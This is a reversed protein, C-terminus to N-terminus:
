LDIGVLFRVQIRENSTLELRTNGDPNGENWGWIQPMVTLAAWWRETRYSVVPGLYLATKTVKEYEPLISQSRFEMGASWSKGLDYAVGLSGGVEGQYESYNHEWETAHEVNLAWKLAGYRQGLILKQEVEAEDGGYSGELYGTVGLAHEAPNLFNYQNELSVGKFTFSSKDEGTGPDRYSESKENLYFAVQYRDTVGYELEQRLDWRAFKDKGVSDTRGQRLTVWNEFELGGAVMTEPEYVYTFRRDDAQLGSGAVVGGALGAWLIWHTRMARVKAEGAGRESGSRQVKKDTRQPLPNGDPDVLRVWVVDPRAGGRM